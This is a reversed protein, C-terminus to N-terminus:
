LPKGNYEGTLTRLFKVILDVERPSLSRGLQYKAMIEVAAELTPVSGDHFYPATRAVNRLSPVKFTYRDREQGTVAYRGLAPGTPNGREAFYDVMVGLKQFMNGGINIGQHCAVCGYNKFLRYGAKEEETIALSDGRLYRDFRSNPTILSREFTAIADKINHSQIGDPYLEAFASVYTPDQKLNRIIEKWNSAMEGPDNTPGDIQDELTEARGDWFQRFNFGSNFVTPANRSGVQGGIGISTPRQDTGGKTLYHCSACSVSNDHSLRTDHFLRDGLAVKRKDLRVEEPIPQIPEQTIIPVSGNARNAQERQQTRSVQLILWPAGALLALAILWSTFLLVRRVGKSELWGM